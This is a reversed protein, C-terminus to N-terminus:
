SKTPDEGLKALINERASRAMSNGGNPMSNVRKIMHDNKRLEARKKLDNITSEKSKEQFYTNCSIFIVPFNKFFKKYIKPFKKLIKSFKKLVKRLNKFIKQFNKSFNKFIRHLSEFNESLKKEFIRPSWEIFFSSILRSM